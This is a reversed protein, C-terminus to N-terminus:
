DLFLAQPEQLFSRSLTREFFPSLLLILSSLVQALFSDQRVGAYGPGVSDRSCLAAGGELLPAPTEWMHTDTVPQQPTHARSYGGPGPFAGRPQSPLSSSAAGRAIAPLPIGAGPPFGAPGIADASGPFTETQPSRLQSMFNELTPM